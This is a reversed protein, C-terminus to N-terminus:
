FPARDNWRRRLRACRRRHAAASAEMLPRHLRYLLLGLGGAVAVMLRDLLDAM